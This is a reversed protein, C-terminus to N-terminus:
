KRTALELINRSAVEFLTRDTDTLVGDQDFVLVPKEGAEAHTKMREALYQFCATADALPDDLKMHYNGLQVGSNRFEGAMQMVAALNEPKDDVVYVFTTRDNGTALSLEALLERLRNGKGASSRLYHAEDVYEGIGCRQFKTRQWEPDGVTWVYLDGNYQKVLEHARAILPEPHEGEVRTLSEPSFANEIATPVQSADGWGIEGRLQTAVKQVSQKWDFGGEPADSYWTKKNRFIGQIRSLLQSGQELELTM